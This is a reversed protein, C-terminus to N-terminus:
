SIDVSVGMLVYRQKKPPKIKPDTTSVEEQSVNTKHENKITVYKLAAKKGLKSHIALDVQGFAGKGLHKLIYWDDKKECNSDQLKKLENSIITPIEYNNTSLTSKLMTNYNEDWNADINAYENLMKASQTKVINKPVYNILSSITHYDGSNIKLKNKIQALLIEIKKYNHRNYKNRWKNIMECEKEGQKTFQLLKDIMKENIDIMAPGNQHADVDQKSELQKVLAQFLIKVVRIDHGCYCSCDLCTMPPPKVYMQGKVQKAVKNSDLNNQNQNQNENRYLPKCIMKHPEYRNLAVDISSINALFRICEMDSDLDVNIGSLLTVMLPTVPRETKTKVNWDISNGFNRHLEKLFSVWGYACFFHLVNWGCARHSDIWNLNYMKIYKILVRFTQFQKQKQTSKTPKSHLNCYHLLIQTSKRSSISGHDHDNTSTNTQLKEESKEDIATDVNSITLIDIIDQNSQAYITNLLYEMVNPTGFLVVNEVANRSCEDKAFIDIKANCKKSIAFLKKMFQVINEGDDGKRCLTLFPTCNNGSFRKDIHTTFDFGQQDLVHLLEADVLKVSREFMEWRLLKDLVMMKEKEGILTSNCWITFLKTSYPTQCAFELIDPNEILQVLLNVNKANEECWVNFSRHALKKTIKNNKRYELINQLYQKHKCDNCIMKKCNNCYYVINKAINKHNDTTLVQKKTSQTRVTVVVNCFGCLCQSQLQTIVSVSHNCHLCTPEEM